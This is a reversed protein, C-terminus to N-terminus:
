RAELAGPPLLYPGSVAAACVIWWRARYFVIRRPGPPLNAVIRQAEADWAAHRRNTEQRQRERNEDDDDDMWYPRLYGDNQALQRAEQAERWDADMNAALAMWLPLEQSAALQSDNLAHLEGTRERAVFFGAM